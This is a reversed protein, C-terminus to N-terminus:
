LEPNLSILNIPLLITSLDIFLIKEEARSLSTELLFLDITNFVELGLTRRASCKEKSFFIYNNTTYVVFYPVWAIKTWIHRTFQSSCPVITSVTRYLGILRTPCSLVFLTYLVIELKSWNILLTQKFSFDTFLLFLELWCHFCIRM